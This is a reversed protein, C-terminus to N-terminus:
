AFKNQNFHKSRNKPISLSQWEKDSLMKAIFIIQGIHYPYHSLQRNIAEIVTHGENRIYVIKNFDDEKLANIADSLCQWAENWKAMLEEKTKIITEFEEDRKRWEKEGDSSLFNTWRSLMNGHLHQIIIAISNSDENVQHFLKEHAIQAIAKEGLDKYYNFQRKASRLFDSQFTEM